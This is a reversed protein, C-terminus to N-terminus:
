SLDISNLINFRLAGAPWIANSNALEHAARPPVKPLQAFRQAINRASCERGTKGIKGNKGGLKRENGSKRMKWRSPKWGPHRYRHFCAQLTRSPVYKRGRKRKLSM